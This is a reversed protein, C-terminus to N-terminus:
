WPAIAGGPWPIKRGRGDFADYLLLAGAMFLIIGLLIEIRRDEVFHGKPKILRKVNDM